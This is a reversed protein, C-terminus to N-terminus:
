AKREIHISYVSGHWDITRNQEYDGIKQISKKAPKVVQKRTIINDTKKNESCSVMLGSLLMLAVIYEFKKM